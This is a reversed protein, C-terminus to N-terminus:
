RWRVDHFVVTWVPKWVGGPRWAIGIVSAVAATGVTAATVTGVTAATAVETGAMGPM